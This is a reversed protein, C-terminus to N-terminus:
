MFYYFPLTYKSVRATPVSKQISNKGVIATHLDNYLNNIGCLHSQM